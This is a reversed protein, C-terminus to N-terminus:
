IEVKHEFFWITIFFYLASFSLFCGILIFWFIAPISANPATPIFTDSLLEITKFTIFVTIFMFLFILFNSKRKRTFSRYLVVAFNIVTQSFIFFVIMTLFISVTVNLNEIFVFHYIKFVIKSYTEGGKNILLDFLPMSLSLYFFVPIAYILFEALGIIMKGTFLIVPKKPLSLLLYGRDSFLDIGINGAGKILPLLFVCGTIIFISIGLLVIFFGYFPLHSKSDTGLTGLPIGVATFVFLAASILAITNKRAKWEQRLVSIM